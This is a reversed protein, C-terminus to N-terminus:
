LPRSRAKDRRSQTRLVKEMGFIRQEDKYVDYSIATTDPDAWFEMGGKWTGAALMEHRKFGEFGVALTIRLTGKPLHHPIKTLIM